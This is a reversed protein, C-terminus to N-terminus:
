PRRMVIVYHSRALGLSALTQALWLWKNVLVHVWNFKLGFKYGARPWAPFLEEIEPLTLGRLDGAGPELTDYWIFVGGSKLVRGIEEAAEARSVGLPLSSFLLGQVVVDFAEAAFPLQEAAAQVLSTPATRDRCARLAEAAHDVGVCLKPEAGLELLQRLLDGRGCGDELLRKGELSVNERRLARTLALELRHRYFLALPKLPTWYDRSALYEKERRSLM